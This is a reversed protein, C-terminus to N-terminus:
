LGCGITKFVMNSPLTLTPTQSTMDLVDMSLVCRSLARLSSGALSTVTRQGLHGLRHTGRVHQQTVVRIVL